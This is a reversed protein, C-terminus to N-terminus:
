YGDKLLDVWRTHSITSKTIIKNKRIILNTQGADRRAKLEERLKKEEEQQQKTKDTSVYIHQHKQHQDCYTATCTPFEEGELKLDKNNRLIETRKPMSTFTIRIPRIQDKKKQGLRTIQTIDATSLEVRHIYLQKITHFDSKMQDTSDSHNEPVCYVILNKERDERRKDEEKDVKQKRVEEDLQKQRNMITNQQTVVEDFKMQKGIITNLKQKDEHLVPLPPFDEDDLKKEKIVKEIAALREEFNQNTLNQVERFKQNTESEQQIEVIIEKQRQKLTIIERIRPLDEKCPRCIFDQSCGSEISLNYLQDSFGSCGFCVWEQCIDCEVARDKPQNISNVKCIKCSKQQNEHAQAVDNEGAM